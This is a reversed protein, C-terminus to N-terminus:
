ELGSIYNQIESLKWLSSGGIKLPKPFDGNSILDYIKSKSLQIYSIVTTIKILRENTEITNM